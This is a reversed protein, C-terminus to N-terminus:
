DNVTEYVGAKTCRKHTGNVYVDKPPKVSLLPALTGYARCQRELLPPLTTYKEEGKPNCSPQTQDCVNLTIGIKHAYDPSYGATLGTIPVIFATGDGLVSPTLGAGIDAAIIFQTSLEVSQMKFQRPPSSQAGDKNQPLQSDANIREFFSNLWERLYLSNLPSETDLSFCHYTRDIGKSKRIRPDDPLPKPSVSFTIVVTKTRKISLKAGLTPVIKSNQTQSAIFAALSSFGLQAVNIGAFAVNGAEDVTLTLVIKVDEQALTWKHKNFVSDNKHASVFDQLECAVRNAIESVPLLYLLPTEFLHFGPLFACGGLLMSTVAFFFGRRLNRRFRVLM